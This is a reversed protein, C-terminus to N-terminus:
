PNESYSLSTGIRGPFGAVDRAFRRPGVLCARTALGTITTTLVVWALGDRIQGTAPPGLLWAVGVSVGIGVALGLLVRPWSARLCRLARGVRRRVARRWERGTVLPAASVQATM